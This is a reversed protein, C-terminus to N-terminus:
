TSDGGDKTCRKHAVINALKKWASGAVGLITSADSARDVGVSNMM